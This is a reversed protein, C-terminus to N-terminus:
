RPDLFDDEEEKELEEENKSDKAEVDNNDVQEIPQDLGPDNM